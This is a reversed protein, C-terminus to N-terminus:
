TPPDTSRCASPSAPRRPPRPWTSHAEHARAIESAIYLGLGLGEGGRRGSGRFFPQFLRDRTAPPIPEGENAVSLEFAGDGAASRVRVPRDPAGHTLANAILNSLLQALRTPDARVGSLPSLQVDILRDPWAARLEEVVQELVPGLEARSGQELSLGGLRGRALDLMASILESM